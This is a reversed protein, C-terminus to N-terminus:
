FRPLVTRHALAEPLIFLLCHNLITSYWCKGGAGGRGREKRPVSVMHGAIRGERVHNAAGEFKFGWYVIQTKSVDSKNSKTLAM